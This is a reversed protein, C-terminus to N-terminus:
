SYHGSKEEIKIKPINFLRAIEDEAKQLENKLEAKPTVPVFMISEYEVEEKERKKGRKKNEINKRKWTQENDTDKDTNESDEETIKGKYWNKPGVIKKVLRMRRGEKRHRNLRRGGREERERGRYYGTLGDLIM